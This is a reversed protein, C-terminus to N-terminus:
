KIVPKATTVEETGYYVDPTFNYPKGIMVQWQQQQNPTLVTNVNTQYQQQAKNFNDLVTQRNNPYDNHWTALNRNWERDYDQFKQAQEDTLNLQKRVVPDNFAGYHQYQWNM